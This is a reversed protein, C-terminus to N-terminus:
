ATNENLRVVGTIEEKIITGDRFYIIRDTRKAVEPDHTVVVITTKRESNLTRLFDMITRGTKSDLNGTPEDALIIEPDNILARAVAVRQQEGGSLTKPKILLKSSLQVTSLLEDIKTDRKEKSYGKVLAPLEMNHKVSSRDILNYSQFVFGIKENRLKALANEGLNSIDIGDILIKGATPKDLAGILNLMTSKGSGSPGMIAVFDGKRVKLNLDNVAHIANSGSAYIKEADITQIAYRDCGTANTNEISSKEELKLNTTKFICIIVLVGFLLSTSLSFAASSSIQYESYLITLSFGSLIIISVSVILSVYNAIWSGRLLGVVSFFILGVLVCVFVLEVYPPFISTISTSLDFLSLVVLSLCGVLLIAALKAGLVIGHKEIISGGV